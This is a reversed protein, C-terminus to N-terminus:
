EKIFKGKVFMSKQYRIEYYYIGSIFKDINLVVSKIFSKHLLKRETNDFITIESVANNDVFVNLVHSTPNPYILTRPTHQVGTIQSISTSDCFKVIWYDATTYPQIITDRNPM